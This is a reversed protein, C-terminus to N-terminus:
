KVWLVFSPINYTFDLRDGLAKLLYTKIISAVGSLVLPGCLTATQWLRRSRTSKDLNRFRTLLSAPASHSKTRFMFQWLEFASVYALSFDVTTNFAGQVFGITAQVSPPQCTVSGDLPLPDWMYHFYATRDVLRYPNPGCQLVIQLITFSNVVVQIIMCLIIFRKTKTNNLGFCQYLFWMMGSRSIMSAAVAAFAITLIHHLRHEPSCVSSKGVPQSAFDWKM